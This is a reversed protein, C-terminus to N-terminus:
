LRMLKEGCATGMWSHIYTVVNPYPRKSDHVRIVDEADTIMGEKGYADLLYLTYVDPSINCINIERLM